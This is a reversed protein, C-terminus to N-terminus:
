NRCRSRVPAGPEPYDAGADGGPVRRRACYLEGARLDHGAHEGARFRQDGPFPSLTDSINILRMILPILLARYFCSFNLLSARVGRTKMAERIQRVESGVVPVFRVAILMGLTLMRPCHIQNMNRILRIQPMGLAPVACIGVMFVRTGMAFAVSFDRNILCSLLVFFLSVPIFMFVSAFLPKWYGFLLYFVCVEALFLPFRSRGAMLMGGILFCVTSVLCLLPYLSRKAQFMGMRQMM